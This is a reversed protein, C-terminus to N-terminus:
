VRTPIEHLWGSRQVDLQHRQRTREGGKRVRGLHADAPVKLGAAAATAASCCHQQRRCIQPLDEDRQHGPETPSTQDVGVANDAVGDDLAVEASLHFQQFRRADSPPRNEDADAAQSAEEASAPDRIEPFVAVVAVGAALRRRRSVRVSEAADREAPVAPGPDLVRGERARGEVQRGQHLMQQAVLQTPDFESVPFSISRNKEFNEIGIIM